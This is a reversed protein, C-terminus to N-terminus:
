LHMKFALFLNLLQPLPLTYLLPCMCQVDSYFVNSLVHFGKFFRRLTDYLSSVSGLLIPGLSFLVMPVYLHEQTHNNGFM